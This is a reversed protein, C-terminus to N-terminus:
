NRAKRKGKGKTSLQVALEAIDEEGQFSDAPVQEALITSASDLQIPETTFFLPSTASPQSVPDLPPIPQTSQARAITMPTETSASASPLSTM